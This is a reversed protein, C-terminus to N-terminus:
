SSRLHCAPPFMPTLLPADQRPCIILQSHWSARSRLAGCRTELLPGFVSDANEPASKDANQRSSVASEARWLHHRSASYTLAFLRLALLPPPFRRTETSEMPLNGEGFSQSAPKFPRVQPRQSHKMNRINSNLVYFRLRLNVIHGYIVMIAQEDLCRSIKYEIVM